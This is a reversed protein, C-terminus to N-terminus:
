FVMASGPAGLIEETDPEGELDTGHEIKASFTVCFESDSQKYHLRVAPAQSIIALADKESEIVAPLGIDCPVKYSILRAKICGAVRNSIESLWIAQEIHTLSDRALPDTQVLFKPSGQVTIMGQIQTGCIGITGVAHGLLDAASRKPIATCAIFESRLSEANPRDVSQLFEKISFELVRVLGESYSTPSNQIANNNKPM